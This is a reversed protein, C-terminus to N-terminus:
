KHKQWTLLHLGSMTCTIDLEGINNTGYVNDCLIKDVDSSDPGIHVTFDQLQKWPESTVSYCDHHTRIEYMSDIPSWIMGNNQQITILIYWVSAILTLFLLILFSTHFTKKTIM